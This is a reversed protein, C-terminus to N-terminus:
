TGTACWTRWMTRFASELHDTFQPANMLASSRLRARLTSRLESLRPLHSALAAATEVYADPTLTALEPVGINNSITVGARGVPLQGALSVVPVGMWISDMATTHGGYPTTDLSVDIRHYLKWYEQRPARDGFELRAPDTGRARFKDILRQRPGGQPTRLLLHSGPVRALLDAWMQVVRDNMKWFNNLCGFTVYGKELAPLENPDVDAEIPFYPWFSDPLRVTREPYNADNEGPPDLYPDSLRYDMADMGTTGPWGLWTVQVPAPKRAFALLRNGATHVALDVLIDIGDDRVQQALQPDSLAVADRWGNTLSKMQRTVADDRAATAYCTIDFNDRDHHHLIPLLCRGVPHDHFDASIFGVRLRRDPDRTNAHPLIETALPRAYLDDWRRHETLIRAPTVDAQYHMTFLMRSHVVPDPRISLAARYAALSEDIMGADKLARAAGTLADFSRPDISLARRHCLLARDLDGADNYAIGLNYLLRVDNPALKIATQFAAIAEPLRDQQQLALALNQHAESNDPRLSIARRYAGIAEDLRALDRLVTGLNNHAEAYDPRLQIARRYATVADEPKRAAALAVGLNNSADPNTPALSTMRQFLPIADLSRNTQHLLVGLMQLAPLHNPDEVLIQRYLPEAEALNGSQHLHLARDFRPQLNSPENRLAM